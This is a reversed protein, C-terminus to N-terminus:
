MKALKLLQGPKPFFESDPSRKYRDTAVKLDLPTLHKLLEFYERYRLTQQAETLAQSPFIVDLALMERVLDEKTITDRRAQLQGNFAVVEGMKPPNKAEDPLAERLKAMRALSANLGQSLPKLGLRPEAEQTETEM